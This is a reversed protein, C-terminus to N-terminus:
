ELMRTIEETDDKAKDYLVWFSNDDKMSKGIKIEPPVDLLDNLLYYEQGHHENVEIQTQDNRYFMKVVQIDKQPCDKWKNYRSDLVLGKGYWIKWGVLVRGRLESAV